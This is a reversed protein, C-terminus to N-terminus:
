ETIIEFNSTIMNLNNSIQDISEQFKKFYNMQKEAIDDIKTQLLKLDEPTIFNENGLLKNFKVDRKIIINMGTKVIRKSLRLNRLLSTPECKVKGRMNPYFSMRYDSLHPFIFCNNVNLKTKSLARPYFSPQLVVEIFRIFRITSIHGVIEAENQITETDTVAVGTLLNMLILSIMFVFLLFIIYSSVESQHFKFESTEFEGTMMVFTKFIATGPNIFFSDEDEITDNTLVIETNNKKLTIIRYNHFLIYFSMGFALILVCYCLLIKFFNYAVRQLMAVHTSMRPHYGMWFILSFAALLIGFVSFHKRLTLSPLCLTVLILIVLSCEIYIHLHMNLDGRNVIIRTIIFGVYIAYSIIFIWFTAQIQSHDYRSCNYFYNLFSLYCWGHFLMVIWFFTKIKFWKVYLFSSIVPHKLLSRMEPFESITLAVETESAFREDDVFSEDIDEIEVFSDKNSEVNERQNKLLFQYNFTLVSKKHYISLSTKSEVCQDIFKSLVRPDIYDIPKEGCKNEVVLSAGRKLLSLVIENESFKAAYHLPTNGFKCIFDVNLKPSHLLNIFYKDKIKNGKNLAFNNYIDQTIITAPCNLLITFINYHNRKAAMELPTDRNRLTTCNPDAGRKLFFSVATELKLLVALQLLTNEGDDLNFDKVKKVNMIKKESHAIVLSFLKSKVNNYKAGKIKTQKPIQCIQNLMIYERATKEYWKHSDLDVSGKHLIIKIIERFSELFLDNEVNKPKKAHTHYLYAARVIPSCNSYDPINVDINAHVLIRTCEVFEPTTPDGYKILFMLATDGERTNNLIEPCNNRIYQLVEELKEKNGSAAAFFILEDMRNCSNSIQLGLQILTKMTKVDISRFLNFRAIPIISKFYPHPYKMTLLENHENILHRINEIDNAKVYELLQNHIDLRKQETQSDNHKRQPLMINLYSSQSGDRIKVRRCCHM